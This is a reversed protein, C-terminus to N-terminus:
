ALSANKVRTQAIDPPAACYAWLVCCQKGLADCRSLLRAAAAPDEGADKRCVLAAAEEALKLLTRWLEESANAIERSLVGLEHDLLTSFVTSGIGSGGGAM